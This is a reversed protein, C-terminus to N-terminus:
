RRFFSEVLFGLILLLVVIVFNRLGILPVVYILFPIFILFGIVMVFIFYFYTRM